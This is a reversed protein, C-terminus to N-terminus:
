SYSVSLVRQSTKRRMMAGTGFMGLLMMLWTTPEPVAPTVPLASITVTSGNCGISFANCYSGLSFRPDSTSGSFLQSGFFSVGAAQIDFGGSVNSTYFVVDFEGVVDGDIIVNDLGFYFPNIIDPTPEEEVIFSLETGTSPDEYEILVAASAPSAAMLAPIAISSFYVKKSSSM